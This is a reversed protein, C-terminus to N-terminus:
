RDFCTVFLSSLCAYIFPCVKLLNVYFRGMLLFLSYNFYKYPVTYCLFTFIWSRLGFEVALFQLCPMLLHKSCCPKCVKSSIFHHKLILVIFQLFLPIGFVSDVILFSFHTITDSSDNQFLCGISKSVWWSLTM